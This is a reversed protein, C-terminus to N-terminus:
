DTEGMEQSLEAMQRILESSRKRRAEAYVKVDKLYVRRHTGTKHHPISGSDLLKNLFPRSVGLADAAQQSTLEQDRALITVSKNDALHGLMEALMQVVEAPVVVSAERGSIELTVKAQDPLNELQALIARVERFGEQALETHQEPPQPQTASM